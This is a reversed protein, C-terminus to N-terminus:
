VSMTQQLIKEFTIAQQQRSFRQLKDLNDFEFNGEELKYIFDTLATKIQQKDDLDAINAVGAKDLLQGTDGVKPTLALVPKQVRLYEYAKAPIQYNCNAAQLLLLADVEFMESLAQKYPIPPQLEFIDGIDLFNIQQIFLSDHGTARLRIKIKKSNIIGEQKLESVAQFLQTPDRESPYIVGSHMLIYPGAAKDITESEAIQSFITEDFGNPLVQWFEDAIDPFKQQYFIKAGPTTVIAKACHKVIKNEIWVFCKKKRPETPYDDQAMPDRLDAVWPVGTIRHLLYGICHASAIPYTSVIVDPRQRLISWLGAFFGGFIWSQWNDPLAMWSLYKNRWSFHRSTDRGFARIVKVDKPIFSFQDEAWKVYSKLSATLVTVKWGKESLHRTFALTRHVGSSGLIPPYHFAVYLANPKNNQKM